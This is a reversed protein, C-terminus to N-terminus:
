AGVAEFYVEILQVTILWNRVTGIRSGGNSAVTLTDGDSAYVATGCSVAGSLGALEAPRLVLVGMTRVDVDAPPPTRGLRDARNDVQEDAVGVFVDGAVLQRARNTAPNLGVLSGMYVVAGVDTPQVDFDVPDVKFTRPKDAALQAM